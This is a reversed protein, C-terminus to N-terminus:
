TNYFLKIQKHMNEIDVERNGFIYDTRNRIHIINESYTSPNEHDLCEHFNYYLFNYANVYKPCYIEPEIHYLIVSHVIDDALMFIDRIDTEKYLLLFNHIIDSSLIYGAGDLFWINEVEMNKKSFYKSTIELIHKNNENSYAQNIIGFRGAIFNTQPSTYLLQLLRPIHFVSSLNTRLMYNFKIKKSIFKYAAVTKIFIGPIYEEKCKCVIKNEDVYIDHEITEDGYIFFSKVNSYLNMYKKWNETFIEEHKNNSSAIILIVLYYRPPTKYFRAINETAYEIIYENKTFM